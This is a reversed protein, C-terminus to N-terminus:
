CISGVDLQPRPPGDVQPPRQPASAPEHHLVVQKWGALQVIREAAKLYNKALKDAAAQVDEEKVDKISSHLSSAGSLLITATHLIAEEKSSYM